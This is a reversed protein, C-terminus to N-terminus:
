EAEEVDLLLEARLRAALEQDEPDRELDDTLARWLAWGLEGGKRVYDQWAVDEDLLPAASLDEEDVTRGLGQLTAPDAIRYTWWPGLTFLRTSTYEMGIIVRRANEWGRHYVLQGLHFAPPAWDQPLVLLHDRHLPTLESRQAGMLKKGVRVAFQGEPLVTYPHAEVVGLAGHYVRHEPSTPDYGDLRIQVITGPELTDTPTSM